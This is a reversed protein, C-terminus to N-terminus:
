PRPTENYAERAKLDRNQREEEFLFVIAAHGRNTALREPTDDDVDVNDMDAGHRLLLKAVEIHGGYAAM